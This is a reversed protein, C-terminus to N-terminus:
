LLYWTFRVIFEAEKQNVKSMMLDNSNEPYQHDYFFLNSAIGKINPYKTVSEHDKLNPYIFRVVEAIEPRMRRQVELTSHKIENKILREFLSMSLNFKFSLDYVAPNPRLQEHDGILIIHRTNQSLSAIIHSEFVEAAEEVIIIPFNVKQLLNGYKARGTTTMAIIHSTKLLNEAAM